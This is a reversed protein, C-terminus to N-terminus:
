KCVKLCKPSFRMVRHSLTAFNRHMLQTCKKQFVRYIIVCGHVDNCQVSIVCQHTDGGPIASVLSRVPLIGKRNGFWCYILLLFSCVQAYLDQKLAFVTDHFLLQLREQVYNHCLDEFTAGTSRGCHAPNRFGPADVVIVSAM